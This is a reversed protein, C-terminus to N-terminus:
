ITGYQAFSALYWGVENGKWISEKLAQEVRGYKIKGAIEDFNSM